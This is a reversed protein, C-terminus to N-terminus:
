SILDQVAVIRAGAPMFGLDIDPLKTQSTDQRMLCGARRLTTTADSPVSLTPVPPEIAFGATGGSNATVTELARVMTFKSAGWAFGVYDGVSVVQGPHLGTLALLALGSGDITQAWSTPADVFPRGGQHFLPIQRDPDFAFILRQSGALSDVWAKLAFADESMLNAYTLSISWLPQGATVSFVRGGATPSLYDIRNPDLSSSKIGGTIIPRPFVISTM